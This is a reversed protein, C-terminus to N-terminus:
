AADERSWLITGDIGEIRIVHPNIAGHDEPKCRESHQIPYWGDKTFMIWVGARMDSVIEDKLRHTNM